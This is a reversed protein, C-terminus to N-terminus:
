IQGGTFIKQADFALTAMLINNTDMMGFLWVVANGIVIFLMLNQIGFRPHTGCFRDVRRMISKM